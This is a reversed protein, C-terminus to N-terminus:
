TDLLFRVMEGGDSVWIEVDDPNRYQDLCLHQYLYVLGERRVHNVGEQEMRRQTSKIPVRYGMRDPSDVVIRRLKRLSLVDEAVAYLIDMVRPHTGLLWIEEIDREKYLWSRIRRVSEGALYRLDLLIAGEVTHGLYREPVEQSWWVEDEKEETGGVGGVGCVGKGGEHVLLLLHRHEVLLHDLRLEGALPYPYSRCLLLTMEDMFREFRVGLYLKLEHITNGPSVWLRLPYEYISCCVTILFEEETPAAETVDRIM